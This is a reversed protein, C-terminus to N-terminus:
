LDSFSIVGLVSLQFPTNQISTQTVNDQLIQTLSFDIVGSSTSIAEGFQNKSITGNPFGRRVLLDEIQATVNDRTTQNNQSISVNLDVVSTVISSITVNATVPRNVEIISIVDSLDPVIPPTNNRNAVTVLVTGAGFFLPFCWADTVTESSTAWIIYDNKAGGQPPNQIRYLIRTRYEEDGEVFAGGLVGDVLVLATTNVFPIATQLTLVVDSDLNYDSGALSAQIQISAVGNADLTGQEITSYELGQSSQVITGIPILEGFVGSFEVYGTSFTAAKRDLGWIFGHRDLQESEATTVFLQLSVWNMFSYLSHIVGSFARALIKVISRRLPAGTGGIKNQIDNEVRQIIELLTPRQFPM